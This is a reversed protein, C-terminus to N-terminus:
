ILKLAFVTKQKNFEHNVQCLSLKYQYGKFSVLLSNKIWMYLWSEQHKAGIVGGVGCWVFKEINYKHTSWKAPRLSVTKYYRDKMFLDLKITKVKLRQAQYIIILLVAWHSHIEFNDNLKGMKLHFEHPAFHSSINITIYNWGMICGIVDGSYFM